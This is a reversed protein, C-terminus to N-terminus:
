LKGFQRWFFGILWVGCESEDIELGWDRERESSTPVYRCLRSSSGASTWSWPPPPAAPSWSSTRDSSPSRGWPRRAGVCTGSRPGSAPSRWKPLREPFLRLGGRDSVGWNTEDCRCGDRRKRWIGRRRRLNEGREKSQPLMRERIM